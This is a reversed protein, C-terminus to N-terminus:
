RGAHRAEQTPSPRVTSSPHPSAEAPAPPPAIHGTHGGLREMENNSEAWPAVPVEKYSRYDTFVSQYGPTAEGNAVAVAPAAVLIFSITWCKM